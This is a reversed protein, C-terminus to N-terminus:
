GVGREERPDKSSRRGFWERVGRRGSVGLRRCLRNVYTRATAHSVDLALAIEKDSRGSVLLGLVDAM